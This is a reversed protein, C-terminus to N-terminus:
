LELGLEEFLKKYTEFHQSQAFEQIKDEPLSELLHDMYSLVSRLEDKLVDPIAAGTPEAQAAAPTFATEAELELVDEVPSEDIQIDELEVLDAESSSDEPEFALTDVEAEIDEIGEPEAFKSPGGDIDIELEEIQPEEIEDDFIEELKFDPESVEDLMIEVGSVEEQRDITLDEFDLDESEASPKLVDEELDIPELDLDAPEAEFVVEDGLLDDEAPLIEGLLEDSEDLNITETRDAAAVEPEILDLDDLDVEDEGGLPIIDDRDVLLDIHADDPQTVLEVEDELDMLGELSEEAEFDLSELSDDSAASELSVMEPSSADAAADEIEMEAADVSFGTLDQDDPVQTEEVTEETIDATNLINDLEDGTLSITEDDEEVFFGSREAETAETFQPAQKLLTLENKLANLEEKIAVLDREIKELEPADQTRKSAASEDRLAASEDERLEMELSAIDDITEEPIELGEDIDFSPEGSAELAADLSELGLDSEFDESDVDAPSDIDTFSKIDMDTEIELEVLEEEGEEFDDLEINDLGDDAGPLVEERVGTELSDLEEEIDPIKLVSDPEVLDGDLGIEPMDDDLELDSLNGLEDEASLEMDADNAGFGDAVADEEFDDLSIDSLEGLEDGFLEDSLEEEGVSIESPSLVDTLDDRSLIEDPAGLDNPSDELNGLLQEEEETLLTGNDILDLESEGDSDTQEVDEPGVKVWIGYQELEDDDATDIQVDNGFDDAQTNSGLNAAM